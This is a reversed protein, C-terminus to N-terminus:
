QVTVTAKMFPHVLCYFTFSGAQTFKVANRDPVQATQTFADLGGSNWFGNGHSTSSLSAAAPPMDSPYTARPDLVPAEFSAALAGVYSNPDDIAGPGTTATHLERSGAPMRFTVTTGVAVTRTEPFFAFLEVGHKGADGVQIEDAAVNPSGLAKAAKVAAAVQRKLRNRDAKRGPVARARKVVNVRGTMGPHVTCLYTYTGAKPFRVKFPKPKNALPPGSQLGKGADFTVTKGYLNAGFVAPNFGLVDQGNFWFPDGAADNANAKQGTPVILAAPDEGAAPIEVTHFGAPVFRVKQGKRITVREPFFANADAPANGVGKAFAKTPGMSVTKTKAEASAATVMALVPVLALATTRRSM